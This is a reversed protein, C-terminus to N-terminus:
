GASPESSSTECRYLGADFPFRQKRNIKNPITPTTGRGQLVSVCIIRTM